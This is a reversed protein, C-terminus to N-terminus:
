QVLGLFPLNYFEETGILQIYKQALKKLVNPGGLYIWEDISGFSCLREATFTRKGKDALRFRLIPRYNRNSEVVMRDMAHDTM